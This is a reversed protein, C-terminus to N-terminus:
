WKGFDTAFWQGSLIATQERHRKGDPGASIEASGARANGPMTGQHLGSKGLSLNGWAEAM